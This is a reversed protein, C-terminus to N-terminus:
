RIFLIGLFHLAGMDNELKPNSFERVAALDNGKHMTYYLGLYYICQANGLSKGLTAYKFLNDWDNTASYNDCLLDCADACGREASVRLDSLYKRLNGEKKSRIADYYLHIGSQKRELYEMMVDTMPGFSKNKIDYREWNLAEANIKFLKKFLNPFNDDIYDFVTLLKNDLDNDGILANISEVLREYVKNGNKGIVEYADLDFEKFNFEDSVRIEVLTCILFEFYLSKDYLKQSIYRFRLNDYKSLNTLHNLKSIDELCDKLCQIDKIFYCDRPDWLVLPTIEDIFNEYSSFDNSEISDIFKDIFIDPSSFFLEDVLSEKEKQDLFLDHIGIWNRTYLIPHQVPPFCYYAKSAPITEKIWDSLAESSQGKINSLIRDRWYTNSFGYKEGYCYIQMATNPDYFECYSIVLLLPESISDSRENLNSCLTENALAWAERVCGRRLLKDIKQNIEDRVHIFTNCDLYRKSYNRYDDKNLFEDGAFYIYRLLESCGMDILKDIYSMVELRSKRHAALSFIKGILDREIRDYYETGSLLEKLYSFDKELSLLFYKEINGKWWVYSQFVKREFETAQTRKYFKWAEEHSIGM